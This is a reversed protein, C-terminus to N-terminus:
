YPCHAQSDFIAKVDVEQSFMPVLPPDVEEEHESSSLLRESLRPFLEAHLGERAPWRLFAIPGASENLAMLEVCTEEPLGWQQQSDARLLLSRLEDIAAPELNASWYPGEGDDLNSSFVASGDERWILIPVVCGNRMDYFSLALEARAPARDDACGLLPGVLLLVGSRLAWNLV